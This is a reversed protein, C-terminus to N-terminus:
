KGWKDRWEIKEKVEQLDIAKGQESERLRLMRGNRKKKSINTSAARSRANNPKAQVTSQYHFRLIYKILQPDISSKNEMYLRKFLALVRFRHEDADNM